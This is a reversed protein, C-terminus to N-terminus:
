REYTSSYFLAAWARDMWYCMKVPSTRDEFNPEFDSNDKKDLWIYHFMRLLSYAVVALIPMDSLSQVTIRHLPILETNALRPLDLTGRAPNGPDRKMMALVNKLQYKIGNGFDLVSGEHVFTTNRQPHQSIMTNYEQGIDRVTRSGFFFGMHNPRVGFYEGIKFEHQDIDRLLSRPIVEYAEPCNIFAM